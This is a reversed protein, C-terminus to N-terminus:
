DALGHADNALQLTEALILERLVRANWLGSQRRDLIIAYAQADFSRFHERSRELAV